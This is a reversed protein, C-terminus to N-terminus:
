SNSSASKKVDHGNITALVTGALVLRVTMLGVGGLSQARFGLDGIGPSKNLTKLM